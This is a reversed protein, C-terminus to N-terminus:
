REGYGARLLPAFRRKQADANIANNHAESGRVIPQCKLESM